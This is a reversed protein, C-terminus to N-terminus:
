YLMRCKPRNATYKRADLRTWEFHSHIWNLTCTLCINCRNKSFSFSIISIFRFRYKSPFEHHTNIANPASRDRRRSAQDTNRKQTQKNQKQFIKIKQQHHNCITIIIILIALPQSKKQNFKLIVILIVQVQKVPM